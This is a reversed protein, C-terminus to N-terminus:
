HAGRRVFGDKAETRWSGADTADGRETPAVTRSRVVDAVEVNLIRQSEHTWPVRNSGLAGETSAADQLDWRM